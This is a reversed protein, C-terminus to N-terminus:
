WRVIPFQVQLLYVFLGAAIATMILALVCAGRLTSTRDGMASIFVCAFTAPALGLYEGLGIFAAVGAVIAVCGRWDPRAIAEHGDDEAARSLIAGAAMVVGLFALLIGLAFPLYGSGMETLTGLSLRQGEGIAVVGFAIMLAGAWLDRKRATELM